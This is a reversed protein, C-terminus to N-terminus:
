TDALDIDARYEVTTTGGQVDSFIDNDGYYSNIEPLPDIAYDTPAKVKLVLTIPNNQLWAKFGEATMNGSGDSFYLYTYQASASVSFGFNGGYTNNNTVQPFHSCVNGDIISVNDTNPATQSNLSTLVVRNGTGSYNESSSGNLTFIKHTETLTGDSSFSGGYVTLGLAANRTESEIPPNQGDTHTIEIETTGTIPCINSYPEWSSSSVTGKEVWINFTGNVTTATGNVYLQLDNLVSFDNPITFTVKGTSFQMYGLAHNANNSDKYTFQMYLPLTTNNCFLTYTEGIAFTPLIIENSSIYWRKLMHSSANTNTGSITFLETTKSYQVRLDNVTTDVNDPIYLKNKGCGPAWPNAYGHLDQQPVIECTCSKLPVDDAGDDFSAVSGSATKVELETLMSIASAWEKPKFGRSTNYKKNLVAGIKNAISVLFSGRESGSGTSDEINELANEIDAAHIGCLNINDAWEEPSYGDGGLVTVLSTGIDNATSIKISGREDSM